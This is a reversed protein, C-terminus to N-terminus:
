VFRDDEESEGLVTLPINTLSSIIPDDTSSIQYNSGAETITWYFRTARSEKSSLCRWTNPNSTCSSSLGYLATDVVFGGIPLDPSFADQNSYPNGMVPRRRRVILWKKGRSLAGEIHKIYVAYM